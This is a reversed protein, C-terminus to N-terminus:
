NSYYTAMPGSYRGSDAFGYQAHRKVNVRTVAVGAVNGGAEIIQRLGNVAAKHRTHAWRVLYVTRDVLRCLVRADSIALVPASDLIVFDYRRALGELLQRMCDSEFLSSPDPSGSGAAVYDVASKPDHRIAKDLEVRGLLHDAVGPGVAGGFAAHVQPRRLDCDVVIIKKGIGALLRALAIVITTKGEKPMSSTVLITKLPEHTASLLLSTHLNRLSEAFASSRQALIQDEPRRRRSRRLAPVLGLPQMGMLTEVQDMSRIGEDLLENVFALLVGLFSAAAVVLLLLITKRPFSPDNPVDALSVIHADAEQYSEDGGSEKFKGLFTDFLTQNAAAEGELAQLRGQAENAQGVDSKLQTLRAKLDEESARAVTVENRLGNVIRAVEAAIKSRVDAIQNRISVMDPHNAGYRKSLQAAQATLSAEQERLAQILRSDLVEPITEVDRTSAGEAQRLHAEADARRAQALVLQEGLDTVEQAAVTIDKGMLLGSENRYAEVARQSTEVQDRLKALQDSLWKNSKQTTELKAGLQQAIYFHALGNAAQAAIRPNESSFAISLARSDGIASVKLNDLFADVVMARQLQAADVSSLHSDAQSRLLSAWSSPILNL